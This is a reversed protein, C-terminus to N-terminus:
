IALFGDPLLSTALMVMNIDRHEKWAETKRNLPELWFDEIEQGFSLHKGLTKLLITIDRDDKFVPINAKILDDLREIAHLGISLGLERFALRFRAPTHLFNKRGPYKLGPLSADLIIRLMDSDDLIGKQFLRAVRYADCLLGGLGLLDETEWERGECIAILDTIEAQLDLSPPQEPDELGTGYLQMATILGDLPDHQGMLPVLPYTLDSSMKWHMRKFGTMEVTYTFGQHAAKMLEIAWRNFIYDGTVVTMRNLAHMWKTLYHYYQGDRDWEKREDIPDKPGREPLSKGIRLGGATPHKKGESEPLGSLWGKNRSDKRHRGLNSHVEDILRLALNRYKVNGTEEHLGLFNCVAYADTWLYRKSFNGAQTLGTLETFDEMLEIAHEIENKGNM